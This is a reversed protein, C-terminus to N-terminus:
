ARRSYLACKFSDSEILVVGGPADIAQPGCLVRADDLSLKLDWIASGAISIVQDNFDLVNGTGTFVVTEDSASFKIHVATREEKWRWLIQSSAEDSSIM